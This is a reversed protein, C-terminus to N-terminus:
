QRLSQAASRRTITGPSMPLIEYGGLQAVYVPDRSRITLPDVDDELEIIAVGWVGKPDLVPGFAVAPGEDVLSKWYAVHNQMIAREAETMDVAFTPRPSILRFLFKKMIAVTDDNAVIKLNRTASSVRASRSIM